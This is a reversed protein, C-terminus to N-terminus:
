LAKCYYTNLMHLLPLCDSFLYMCAPPIEKIGAKICICLLIMQTFLPTLNYTLVLHSCPAGTQYTSRCAPVLNDNLQCIDLCDLVSVYLVNGISWMKVIMERKDYERVERVM